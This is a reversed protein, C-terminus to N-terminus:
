ASTRTALKQALAVLTPVGWGTGGDKSDHAVGAIDVHVAPLDGAASLVFLAATISGAGPGGLNTMDAIPSNNLAKFEDWTPFQFAREGMSNAAELYLNAFEQNNSFVGAAVNGLASIIAGTLTAYDVIHTVGCHKRAFAIADVLTLRGEADTNGIEYTKGDLGGYVDGPRYAESGTMNETAALFAKVRIPLGLRAIARIAAIVDAGGCMDFKMERMGSAPKIDLGGSDFTVSKGVIGLVPGSPDFEAPTYDMVIFWPPQKSGKAVALFANMGYWECAARDHTTTTITGGSKRAVTLALDKLVTPTCINPPENAIDRAMNVSAGIVGGEEIGSRLELLQEQNLSHGFHMHIAVEKISCDKRDATKYHNPMYLATAISTATAIGIERLTTQGFVELDPLSLAVNETKLSGIKAFVGALAKRWAKYDFKSRSGLGFYVFAHGDLVSTTTLTQGAGAKFGYLQAASALARDRQQGEHLDEEFKPFLTAGRPGSAEGVTFRIEQRAM